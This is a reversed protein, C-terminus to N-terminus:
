STGLTMKMEKQLWARAFTWDRKVTAPSLELADATEEVSMGGFFRCEVVRSQREAIKELERLAEDLASLMEVQEDSFDIEVAPEHVPELTVHQAGGGRKLRKRDRAYDCLIHRMAKSALGLFHVRSDAIREQDVLKLYAEHVLATTNLTFDGHWQRRQQRAVRVLEQYVLPFVSDLASRDGQQAAHLLETVTRDPTTPM